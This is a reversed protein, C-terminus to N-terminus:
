MGNAIHRKKRPSELESNTDDERKLTTEEGEVQHRQTVLNTFDFLLSLRSPLTKLSALTDPPIEYLSPLHQVWLFSTCHNYDRLSLMSTELAAPM